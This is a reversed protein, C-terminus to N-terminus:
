EIFSIVSTGDFISSKFPKELLTEDCLGELLKWRVKELILMEKENYKMYVPKNKRFRKGGVFWEKLILGNKYKTIRAPKDFGRHLTRDPLKYEIVSDRVIERTFKDKAARQVNSNLSYRGLNCVCIVLSHWRTPDDIYSAILVWIGLPIEM